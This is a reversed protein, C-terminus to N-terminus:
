FLRGVGALSLLCTDGDMDKFLLADRGGIRRVVINVCMEYDIRLAVELTSM